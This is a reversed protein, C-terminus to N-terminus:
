IMFIFRNYRCQMKFFIEQIDKMHCLGLSKKIKQFITPIQQLFLILHYNSIESM